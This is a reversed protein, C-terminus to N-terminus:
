NKLANIYRFVYDELDSLSEFLNSEPIFGIFLGNRDKLSYKFEINEKSFDQNYDKPYAHIKAIVGVGFSFSTKLMESSDTFFLEQGIKFKPLIENTNSM